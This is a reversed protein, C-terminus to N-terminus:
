PSRGFHGTLSVLGLHMQLAVKRSVLTKISSDLVSLMEEDAADNELMELQMVGRALSQQIITRRQAATCDRLLIVREKAAVEARVERKCEDFREWFNSIPDTV